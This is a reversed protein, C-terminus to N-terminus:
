TVPSFPSDSSMLPGHYKGTEIQGYKLVLITVEEQTIGYSEVVEDASFLRNTKSFWCGNHMYIPMKIQETVRHRAGTQVDVKFIELMGGGPHSM